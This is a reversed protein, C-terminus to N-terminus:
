TRRLTRATLDRLQPLARKAGLLTLFETLDWTVLWGARALYWGVRGIQYEDHYDLLVYGALQWIDTAALKQPTVTSKVDILLDAAIWDADAGDVDTSGAFTPGIRTLAATSHARVANLGTDARAAVAAIDACVYPPVEALLQSLTVDADADGLSTGPWLQGSRYAEEFLAAVYCARALQDEATPELCVSRGRDHPAHEDVLRAFEQLLELGARRLAKATAPPRGLFPTGCLAIGLGISGDISPVADSLAFRIRHDIAAGLTGWAPRQGGDPAPSLVDPPGSRAAKYATRVAATDPLETALLQRLGSSPDKVM